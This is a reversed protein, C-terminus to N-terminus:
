ENTSKLYEEILNDIDENTSKLFDEIITDLIKSMPIKTKESYARLGLHLKTKVASGLPTRNKLDKRAM